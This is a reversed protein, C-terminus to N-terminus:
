FLGNLLQFSVAFHQPGLNFVSANRCVAFLLSHAAAAFACCLQPVLRSRLLARM